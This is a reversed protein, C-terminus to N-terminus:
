VHPRLSWRATNKRKLISTLFASRWLSSFGHHV